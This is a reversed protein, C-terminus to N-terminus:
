VPRGWRGGTAFFTVARHAPAGALIVAPHPPPPPPLDPGWSPCPSPTIVEIQALSTLPVSLACRSKQRFFLTHDSIIKLLNDHDTNQHIFGVLTSTNNERRTQFDVSFSCYSCQGKIAEHNYVGNQRERQAM